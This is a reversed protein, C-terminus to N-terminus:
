ILSVENGVFGITQSAFDLGFTANYLGISALPFTQGTSWVPGFSWDGSDVVVDYSGSAQLLAVSYGMNFGLGTENTLTAAQDLMLGFEILGDGDADYSSANAIMIDNFNWGMATGNEFLLTGGLTGLAMAFEQLFNMGASLDVDLLQVNGDAVSIDISVDFPNAGKLFIDAFAQDLDVGFQLFNNSSGSSSFVTESTVVSTTDLNPWALTISLGYDFDFSIGINESEISLINVSYNGSSGFSVLTATDLEYDIGLSASIAYNFIFDLIYSGNPGSTTFNVGSSLLDAASEILLVDTTHNYSTDITIGYPASADISGGDFTLHSQFGSHLYLDASGYIFDGSSSNVPGLTFGIYRNDELILADGSGWISQDTARFTLNFNNTASDVRVAVTTSTGEEDGNSMERAVARVGLDFNFDTNPALQLTFTRTLSQGTDTPNYALDSEGVIAAGAPLGSFEFRDLYESGDTDTVTATVSILIENVNAGAATTVQLTPADAVAVVNIAASASDGGGHGDIMAYTFSDAGSYNLDPTYIVTLGDASITATGHEPDTVSVIRFDGRGDEDTDNSLVSYIITTDEVASLNDNIADPAAPAPTVLKPAAGGGTLRVGFDVLALDDLTLGGTSSTLTLSTSSVVGHGNGPSGFEVGVDFPGRGAGNMNVGRGLDMVGEDRFMSSTVNPGAVSLSGLLSADRVDFFLGRVDAPKGDVTLTLYISGDPREEMHVQIDQLGGDITFNVYRM